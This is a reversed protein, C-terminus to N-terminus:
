DFPAPTSKVSGAWIMEEFLNWIQLEPWRSEHGDLNLTISRYSPICPFRRELANTETTEVQRRSDREVDTSLHCGVHGCVSRIRYVFWVPSVSFLPFFLYPFHPFFCEGLGFSIDQGTKITLGRWGHRAGYHNFAEGGGWNSRSYINLYGYHCICQTILFGPHLFTLFYACLPAHADRENNDDHESCFLGCKFINRTETPWLCHHTCSFVYVLNTLMHHMTGSQDQIIWDWLYYISVHEGTM